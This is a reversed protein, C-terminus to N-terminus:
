SFRWLVRRVWGVVLVKVMGSGMEGLSRSRSVIRCALM